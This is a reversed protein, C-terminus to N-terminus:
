DVVLVETEPTFMTLYIGEYYIPAYGERAGDTNDYERMISVRAEKYTVGQENLLQRIQEAQQLFAEETQDEDTLEFSIWPNLKKEVQPQWSVEETYLGKPIEVSYGIADFAIGRARLQEELWYEGAQQFAETREEDVSEYDLYSYIEDSVVVPGGISFSYNSRIGNTYIEYHFYYRDDKFNYGSDVLQKNHGEYTEAVFDQVKGKAVMKSVFNGNFSVYFFLVVAVLLAAAALLIWKKM